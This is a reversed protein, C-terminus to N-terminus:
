YASYLHIFTEPIELLIHLYNWSIFVLYKFPRPIYWIHAFWILIKVASNVLGVKQKQTINFKLKIPVLFGCFFYKDYPMFLYKYTFTLEIRSYNCHGTSHCFVLFSFNIVKHWLDYYTHLYLYQIAINQSNWINLLKWIATWCISVCLLRLM